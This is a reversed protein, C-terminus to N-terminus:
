GVRDEGQDVVDGAALLRRGEAARADGQATGDARPERQAM